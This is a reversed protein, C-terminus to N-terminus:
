KKGCMWEYLLDKIMEVDNKLIMGEGYILKKSLFMQFDKRELDRIKIDGIKEILENWTIYLVGEQGRILYSINLRDNM